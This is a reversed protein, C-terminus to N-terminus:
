YRGTIEVNRYYIAKCLDLLTDAEELTLGNKEAYVSLTLYNNVWDLYMELLKDYAM